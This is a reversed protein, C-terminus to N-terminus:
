EVGGEETLEMTGIFSLSGHFYSTIFEEMQPSVLVETLPKLREKNEEKIVLIRGLIEAALSDDKERALFLDPQEGEALVYSTQCIVFDAEQSKEWMESEDTKILQVEYPNETIDGEVAMLDADEMLTLIGEEQLLLLSRAFGTTDSPVLIKSGMTINSLRNSKGPYIAMPQFYVVAEQTLFVEKEMNYRELYGFHQFFNGEAKGELVNLNPSDYDECLQIELGYGKEELLEAAKSLIEIEPSGVAAVTFTDKVEVKKDSRKVMSMAEGAMPMQYSEETNSQTKTIEFTNLVSVEKKECATVISSIVGMLMIVTLSRIKM